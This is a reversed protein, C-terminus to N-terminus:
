CVVADLCAQPRSKSHAVGVDEKGCNQQLNAQLVFSYSNCLECQIRSYKPICLLGRKVWHNCAALTSHNCVLRFWWGVVMTSSVQYSTNTSIHKQEGWIYWKANYGFMELKNTSGSSVKCVYSMSGPQTKKKRGFLGYKNLRMKKDVHQTRCRRLFLEQTKAIERLIELHWRGTFKSLM